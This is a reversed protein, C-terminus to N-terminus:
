KAAKADQVTQAMSAKLKEVLPGIRQQTIAASKQTVQPMKELLAVGAPSRYFALLGDVEEQTFTEAYLKLYAGKLDAWNIEKRIIVGADASFKEIVKQGQPTLTRGQLSQNISNRVAQELGQQAAGVSREMRTAVLLQSISENSPPAAFASTGLLLTTLLLSLYKM